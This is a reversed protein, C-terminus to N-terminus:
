SGVQVAQFTSKQNAGPCITDNFLKINRWNVILKRCPYQGIVKYEIGKNPSSIAPDIDHFVAFLTNKEYSASPIAQNVQYNDFAGAYSTNFSIKGNAGIVIKQFNSGYFCFPFNLNISDSFHDDLNILVNTSGPLDFDYHGSYPISSVLYAQAGDITQKIDPLKAVINTCTDNCALNITPAGIINIGPCSPSQTFGLIPLYLWLGVLLIFKFYSISKGNMPM